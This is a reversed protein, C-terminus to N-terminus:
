FHMGSANYVIMAIFFFLYSLFRSWAVNFLIIPNTTTDLHLKLVLRPFSCRINHANHQHLTISFFVSMFASILVFNFKLINFYINIYVHYGSALNLNSIFLEYCLGIKFRCDKTVTLPCQM